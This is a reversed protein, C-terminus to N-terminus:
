HIGQKILKYDGLNWYAGLIMLRRFAKILNQYSQLNHLKPGSRIPSHSILFIQMPIYVYRNFIDLRVVPFFSSIQCYAFWFM